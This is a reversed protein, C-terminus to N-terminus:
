RVSGGADDPRPALVMMRESIWQTGDPFRQVIKAIYPWERTLWVTWPRQETSVVFTEVRQGDEVAVTDIDTVRMTEWTHQLMQGVVPFRATYGERLPFGALLVAYLSLDFVDTPYRRGLAQEGQGTDIRVDVSDGDFAMRVSQSLQDGARQHTTVPRMTGPEVLHDRWLDRVGAPTWRAVLRQMLHRGEVDVYRVTDTWRGADTLTGDADKRWLRWITAYPLIYSGDITGDGVFITDVQAMAPQAPVGLTAPPALLAVTLVPLPPLPRLLRHTFSKPSQM